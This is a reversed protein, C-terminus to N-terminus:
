KKNGEFELSTLTTAWGLLRQDFSGLLDVDLSLRELSTMGDYESPLKKLHVNGELTLTKLNGLGEGLSVPMEKLGNLHVNLV